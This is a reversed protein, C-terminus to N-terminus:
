ASLMAGSATRRVFGSAWRSRQLVGCRCRPERSFRSTAATMSTSGRSSAEWLRPTGLTRFMGPSIFRIQRSPPRRGDDAKGEAFLASSTRGSTDMPLRSTFAVSAVGPIAAIRNLIEHQMRTASRNPSRPRRSQCASRRCARLSHTFGPDVRRLEQFSRIMLGSSVLLVLALAMQVAVLAHQSRQRERTLSAGRGGGSIATALQPEAARIPIFGFLLGSLLSVLVAFGLAVTDISIESLRPLESTRDGRARAPRRLSSLGVGLAGGLLALTLSEVLLARVM